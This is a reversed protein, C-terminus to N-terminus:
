LHFTPPRVDAAKHSREELTQEIHNTTNKHLERRAKERYASYADM